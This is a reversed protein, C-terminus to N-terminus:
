STQSSSASLPSDLPFASVPFNFTSTSGAGNEAKQRRNKWMRWPATAAHQLAHRLGSDAGNPRHGLTYKKSLNEVRIVIDSSM